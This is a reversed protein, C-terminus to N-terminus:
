VSQRSFWAAMVEMTLWAITGVIVLFAIGASQGLWDTLAAFGLPALANCVLYPVALKGLIAGYGETGFLALPLAGRVITVLGNSIGILMTFLLASLFSAGGFILVLFSLPFFVLSIRATTIPHLKQGFAMDAARGAVQAVGKLAALWVATDLGVGSSAIVTVLHSALVGMATGSAAMVVGFLLMARFRLHPAIVGTSTPKAAGTSAQSAEPEQSTERRALGYWNLPLCILLNVAAYVFIATRWGHAQNIWHGIVWFVTSAFGGFLTLASIALRGRSPTVQVLSPFAADYLSLRMAVGLVVWAAVYHAKTTALGLVVLGLASVIAGIAMVRQGGFRDIAKGVRTSILSAVLLGVTLGGFTFSRSWGLDKAIPEGLIGLAYLTTGWACIQTIGLALVATVAPERAWRSFSGEGGAM